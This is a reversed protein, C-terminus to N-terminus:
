PELREPVDGVNVMDYKDEMLTKQGGTDAGPPMFSCRQSM